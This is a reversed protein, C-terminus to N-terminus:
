GNIKIQNTIKYDRINDLGVILEENHYEKGNSLIYRDGYKHGKTNTDKFEINKEELGIKSRISEPMEFTITYKKIAYHSNIDLIEGTEKVIAKEKM